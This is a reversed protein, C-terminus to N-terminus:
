ANSDDYTSEDYASEEAVAVAGDMIEAAADSYASEGEQSPDIYADLDVGANTDTYVADANAPVSDYADGEVESGERLLATDPDDPDVRAAAESYPNEDIDEAHDPNDEASAENYLNEVTESGDPNDEAAADVYLAETVGPKKRINTKKKLRVSSLTALRHKNYTHQM